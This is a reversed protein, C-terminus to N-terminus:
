SDFADIEYGILRYHAAVMVAEVEVVVAEVAVVVLFGRQKGFSFSKKVHFIMSRGGAVASVVVVVM